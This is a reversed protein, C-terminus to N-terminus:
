VVTITIWYFSIAAIAPLMKNQQILIFTTWCSVQRVRATGITRGIYLKIEGIRGSLQQVRRFYFAIHINCSKTRSKWRKTLDSNEQRRRKQQVYTIEAFM